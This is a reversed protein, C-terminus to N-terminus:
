EEAAPCRRRRKIRVNASSFRWAVPHDGFAVLLDAMEKGGGQDRFDGAHSSLSLFTRDCRRRLYREATTVGDGLAIPRAESMQRPDTTQGVTRSM